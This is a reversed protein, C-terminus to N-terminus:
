KGFNRQVDNFDDLCSQLHDETIDPWFLDLFMFEAYASLYTLFGSLRARKGKSTRIILDLAPVDGIWLSSKLSNEDIDSIGLIGEKVKIALDKAAHIIEQQGTYCFLLNLYLKTNEKTEEEMKKIAPVINEPFYNKDGVFRVRVGQEKLESLQKLSEDMLLKFLYNKEEESRNFNELSFTYISLYEIGKKLCFKITTKFAEMGKKHGFFSKLKNNEAWRRNGDPIIGLHQM